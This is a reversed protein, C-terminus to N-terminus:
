KRIKKFWNKWFPNQTKIEKTRYNNFDFSLTLCQEMWIRKEVYHAVVNIKLDIMKTDILRLYLDTRNYLNARYIPDGWYLNNGQKNYFNMQGQGIYFSNEIGLGRWEANIRILAAHHLLWDTEGRNDELGLVWGATFNFQDMPPTLSKFDLGLETLFLCNDHIYQGQPANKMKAYHFMYGYHRAFFINWSTRGTWGVFFTERTKTTQRSTWDLWIDFYHKENGIQWLLGTLTPRYFSISDQFFIRPYERISNARPFAGIIFRFPKYNMEYYAVPQIEFINGMGGWHTAATAGIHLHHISDIGIGIEPIIRVGAMTQDNQFKCGGFETNDFWSQLEVGYEFKIKPNTKGFIITSCLLLIFYSIIRKFM